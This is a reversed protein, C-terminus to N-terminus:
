EPSLYVFPGTRRILGADHLAEIAEAAVVPSGIADVLVGAGVLSQHELLLDLILWQAAETSLQPTRV